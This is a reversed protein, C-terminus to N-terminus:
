EEPKVQVFTVKMYRRPNRRREGTNLMESELDGVARVWWSHDVDSQLLLTRGNNLLRKLAVHEERTVHISLTFTDSKYGETIVLPFDEGLPQFSVATNTTTVGINEARVSLRMSRSLDRIDKLWWDLETFTAENSPPGFGSAFVDGALGYSLTQVRYRRNHLPVITHDTYLLTGTLVDYEAGVTKQGPLITWEEPYGTGDDDQYEIIPVSWVPQEPRATGDRWVPAASDPPAGLMVGVRDFQTTDGIDRGLASLKPRIRTTGEPLAFVGWSQVWLDTNFADGEASVESIKQNARFFELAVVPTGATSGLFDATVTVKGGSRRLIEPDLDGIDIMRNPYASVMGAQVTNAPRIIGIWSAMSDASPGSGPAFVGYVSQQGVAAVGASDYVATSIWPNSSGNNNDVREVENGGQAPPASLPRLLGIWGAATFVDGFFSGTRSHNGTAVPANSDSFAMHVDPFNLLYTADDTREKVDGNDWTDGHPTTAGFLCVRWARGDTNAVTGTNVSLSGRSTGGTEAIFQNSAIDANRYAVAVTMKPQGWANHSGAWSNPESGGATRKLIAMTIDGSHADGNGGNSRHLRRVLTWGSPPTITGVNGSFGVAALMLDGSQVGSPKNITYSTNQSNQKWATSRGVFQIDAAQSPPTLNATFSGGSANDSAAFAAIRWANPDSNNVIQTRHVLTGAADTRVNEAIFQEDAHAAGSYALVVATRRSSSASVTGTWTSPDDALATRKLIWLAIDTTGDDISATNVVSWGLPPTITGHQSSTVFGILLDNDQVGAPKNLTYNAGNTPSTFITSTARFALSGAAGTYTMQNTRLGNSGIGTTLVRQTTSAANAQVWADSQPAPDDGTALFATLLNRSAHGGDSWATDVGYMIGAHDVYHVEGSAPNAIVVILEGYKATGLSTGGVVFERWTSNTGGGSISIAFTDILNHEQDYQRLRLSVTRSTTAARVQARITIPSNPAIEVKTTAATMNAASSATMAMSAVGGGFAQATSRTLTCNNGVWGLPDTPIEFDAQQVSLLNSSDRMQLFASSTFPDPVATPVGIGPTGSIGANDDGPVGPAPGAVTFAKSAWSSHAGFASTAKVYVAYGDPNLSTPLVFSVAEGQVKRAYVPPATEPNFTSSATQAATFVRYEATKQPEGEDQRYTWTVTPSPTNVTGSPSTVVVVPKTHFNVRLYLQSIRISDFLNNLSFVRLRLKNLRHIDWKKGLPDSAYTGVEYTQFTNTAYLTRTTYRSTNESSLVNVTVARPGSGANTRMRIFVTVSDIIAGAPLDNADFPFRVTAGGRYQPTRIGCDDELYGIAEWLTTALSGFYTWGDNEVDGDPLVLFSQTM